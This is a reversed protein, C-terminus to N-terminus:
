RHYCYYITKNSQTNKKLDRRSEVIERDRLHFNMLLRIAVRIRARIARRITWGTFIIIIVIAIIAVASM